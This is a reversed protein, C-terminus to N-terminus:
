RVDIGSKKKLWNLKSSLEGIEAYLEQIKEAQEKEASKRIKGEDFITPMGEIAAKKWRSLLNPHIGREGAIENVSKAERLVEIVAKTKFESTYNKKM